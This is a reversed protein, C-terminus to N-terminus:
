PLQQADEPTLTSSVDLDGSVSVARIRPAGEALPLAGTHLRGSVSRLSADVEYLPADVSLDASVTNLSLEEFPACLSLAVNGTVTAASGTRLSAADVLVTGSTTMLTCRDCDLQQLRIDCTISRASITIFRLDDARIQGSVADMTLDSGSLGRLDMWGSITRADIAGKWNQPLRLTLQMWSGDAATLKGRLAAPQEITLRNDRATIRLEGVAADSGSVMVHIDDIDDTSVDLAAGNVRIIIRTVALADIFENRNM